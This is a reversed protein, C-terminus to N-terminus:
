FFDTYQSFFTVDKKGIFFIMVHEPSYFITKNHYGKVATFHFGFSLSILDWCLKYYVRQQIRQM